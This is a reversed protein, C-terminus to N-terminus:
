KFISEIMKNTNVAIKSNICNKNLIKLNLRNKDCSKLLELLEKNNSWTKILKKRRLNNVIDTQNEAAKYVFSPLGIKCREIASVGGSGICLFCKKYIKSINYKQKVITLKKLKIFNKYKLLINKYQSSNEGIVIFVKYKEFSGFILDIIKMTKQKPDTGGMSILVNNKNDQYNIVFNFQNRILAYKHGAFIKTNKFVYDKYEKTKRGFTQDILIDCIIKKKIFDNFLIQKKTFKRIKLCWNYNISYSDIILIPEDIKKLIESTLQFDKKISLTFKKLDIKLKFIKYKKIIDLFPNDFDNSLIIFYIKFNHININELFTLCRILHGYGFKDSFDVRFVLNKKM